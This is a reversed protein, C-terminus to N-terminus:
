QQRSRLAQAVAFVTRSGIRTEDTRDGPKLKLQARGHRGGRPGFLLFLGTGSVSFSPFDTIEPPSEVSISIQGSVEPRSFSISISVARKQFADRVVGPVNKSAVTEPLIGNAASEIILELVNGFFGDKPIRKKEAQIYDSPILGRYLPVVVRADHVLGSANVAILLNAADTIGMHAASPGRGKRQIFGAERAYRAILAVTASDMGEAEAVAEVLETLTAMMLKRDDSKFVSPRSADLAM